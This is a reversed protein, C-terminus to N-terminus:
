KSAGRLIEKEYVEKSIEVLSLLGESTGINIYAAEYYKGSIPSQLVTWQLHKSVVDKESGYYYCSTLSLLSSILLTVLILIKM